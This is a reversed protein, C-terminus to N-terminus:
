GHQKAKEKRKRKGRESRTQRPKPQVEAGVKTGKEDDIASRDVPYKGGFRCKEFDARKLKYLAMAAQADEISNHGEQGDQIDWGLLSKTLRKLSPTRGAIGGKGQGGNRRTLSVGDWGAAMARFPSHTSTDRIMIKPYNLGLVGLDGRLAHGVLTRGKIHAEVEKQVVDFSKPRTARNEPRLHNATIGSWQTRYDSVRVSPPQIVYADYLTKLDYDVISVRALVSHEKPDHTRISCPAEDIDRTGVMECDLAVYKKALKRSTHTRAAKSSSVTPGTRDLPAPALGYSATPLSSVYAGM